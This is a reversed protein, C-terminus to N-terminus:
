PLKYMILIIEGVVATWPKYSSILYSVYAHHTIFERVIVNTDFKYILSGVDRWTYSNYLKCHEHKLQRCMLM